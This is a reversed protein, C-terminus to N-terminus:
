CWARDRPRRPKIDPNPNTPSVPVVNGQEDCYPGRPANGYGTGTRDYSDSNADPMYRM